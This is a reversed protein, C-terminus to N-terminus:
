RTTRRPSATPRRGAGQRPRVRRHERYEDSISQAVTAFQNTGDRFNFTNSFTQLQVDHHQKMFSQLEPFAASGAPLEMMMADTVQELLPDYGSQVEKALAAAFEEMAEIDTEISAFGATFTSAPGNDEM